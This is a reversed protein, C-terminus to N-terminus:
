TYIMHRLEVQPRTQTLGLLNLNCHAPFCGRLLIKWLTASYCFLTIIVVNSDTIGQSPISSVVILHNFCHKKLKTVYNKRVYYILSLPHLIQLLHVNSFFFFSFLCSSIDRYIANHEIDGRSAWAIVYFPILLFSWKKKNNTKNPSLTPLLKHNQLALGCHKFVSARQCCGLDKSVWPRKEGNIKPLLQM